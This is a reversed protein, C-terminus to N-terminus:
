YLDLSGSVQAIRETIKLFVYGLIFYFIGIALEGLVLMKNDFISEGLLFSKGVAISRTLPLINSIWRLFYPLSDIPYNAGTFVLFMLSIINLIMNINGTVMGFSGLFLGFCTASFMGIVIIIAFEFLSISSFDANFLIAGAILSIVVTIISDFINIFGKEAFNILKNSPSAVIVKLTGLMREQIFVIGLGFVCNYSCLVISNGIVYSTMDVDGYLFKSILCFFCLQFIPNLIKLIFYMLPETWGYLSKFSYYSQTFFRNISYM